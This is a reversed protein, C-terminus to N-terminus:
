LLTIENDWDDLLKGKSILEETLVRRPVGNEMIRYLRTKPEQMGQNGCEGDRACLRSTAKLSNGGESELITEM